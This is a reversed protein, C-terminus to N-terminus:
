RGSFSFLYALVLGLYAPVSKFEKLLNGSLSFHSLSYIYGSCALIIDFAGINKKLGLKDQLICANTPLLFDPTNTCYILHDISEPNIYNLIKKASKLALDNSFINKGAIRRTKIGIKKIMKKIKYKDKGAIKLLDVNSEKQSPLYYEIKNIYAQTM